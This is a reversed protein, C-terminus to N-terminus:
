YRPRDVYRPDDAAYVGRKVHHEWAVPLLHPWREAYASAGEIFKRTLVFSGDAAPYAALAPLVLLTNRANM